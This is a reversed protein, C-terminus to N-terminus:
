TLQSSPASENIKLTRPSEVRNGCDDQSAQDAYGTGPIRQTHGTLLKRRNGASLDERFPYARQSILSIRRLLPQLLSRVPEFRASDSGTESRRKVSSNMHLAFGPAQAPVGEFGRAGFLRQALPAFQVPGLDFALTKRPDRSHRITCRRSGVAAMSCPSSCRGPSASRRWCAPRRNGVFSRRCCRTPPSAVPRRRRWRWRRRRCSSSCDSRALGAAPRLRGPATPARRASPARPSTRSATTEGAGHSIWCM